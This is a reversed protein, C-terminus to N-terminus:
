KEYCIRYIKTGYCLEYGDTGYCIKYNDTGYCIEDIGYCIGYGDTGYCIGYGDTGYCIGYGDIGYCIGYDDTGYCIEYDNTGYRIGYYDTEYWIGYDNTGYCNETTTQEDVVHGLHLKHKEQVQVSRLISELALDQKSCDNFHFTIENCLQQYTSDGLETFGVIKVDIDLIVKDRINSASMIGYLHGFNLQTFMM